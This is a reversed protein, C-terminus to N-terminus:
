NLDVSHLYEREKEAPDRGNALTKIIQTTKPGLGTVNILAEYAHGKM